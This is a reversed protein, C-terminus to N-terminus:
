EAKIEGWISALRGKSSVVALVKKIGSNMLNKIDNGTLAVNFIMVEDIIGYFDYVHAVGSKGIVMSVRPDKM